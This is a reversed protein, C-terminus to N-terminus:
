KKSLQPRTEDGQGASSFPDSTHHHATTPLWFGRRIDGDRFDYSHWRLPFSILFIGYFCLLDRPFQQFYCVCQFPQSRLYFRISKRWGWHFITKGKRYLFRKARNRCVAFITSDRVVFFFSLLLFYWTAEDNETSLLLCRVACLVAEKELRFHPRGAARVLGGLQVVLFFHGCPFTDTHM